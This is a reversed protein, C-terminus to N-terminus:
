KKKDAYDHVFVSIATAVPVSIIIGVIPNITEPFSAGVLMAFMIIVPSLGVAKRMVLPILVNSEFQQIGFYVAIIVILLFVGGQSAAIILAPLLAIIPGVYPILETLAVLTALSAAYNLGVIKLIVFTLAGMSLMLIMQGRVWAGFKKEVVTSKETIYGRMRRPFLTILFQKIGNEDIIMFFAIVLVMVFSFVGGAISKVVALANQGVINLVGLGAVISERNLDNQVGSLYNQLNGIQTQVVSTDIGFNTSVWSLVGDALNPIETALIPVFSSIVAGTIGIFVIYTLLIGLWRPIKFKQLKDILPDLALALIAAIFFLILIGKIQLLFFAGVVIGVIALAARAVSATSIDVTTRPQKPNLSTAKQTEAPEAESQGTENQLSQLVQKAKKLFTTLNNIMM